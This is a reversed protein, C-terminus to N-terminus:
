RGLLALAEHRRINLGMFRRHPTIGTALPPVIALAALGINARMFFHREADEERESALIFLHLWIV